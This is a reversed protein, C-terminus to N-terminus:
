PPSDLNRGQRNEPSRYNRAEYLYIVRLNEGGVPAVVREIFRTSEFTPLVEGVARPTVVLLARSVPAVLRMTMQFHNHTALSPGWVRIDADLPRMYYVLEATVSRNNTVVYQYPGRSFQASVERALDRWGEQRKFVNGLGLTDAAAPRFLFVWFLLQVTGAIAFSLWLAPRAWRM